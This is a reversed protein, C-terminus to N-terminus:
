LELSFFPSFVCVFSEATRSVMDRFLMVFASYMNKCTYLAVITVGGKGTSNVVNLLEALVEVLPCCYVHIVSFSNKLVDKSIHGTLSPKAYSLLSEDCDLIVSFLIAKPVCKPVGYVLFSEACGLIVLFM